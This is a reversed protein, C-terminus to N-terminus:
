ANKSHMRDLWYLAHHDTQLVFEKRYLFVSLVQIAWVVALCEKEVIAYKEERPLLKRSIFILRHDEGDEGVQSLVAGVGQNSADTQVIIEKSLDPTILVPAECLLRKVQQFARECETTWHFTTVKKKTLDSLPATVSSFQPSNQTIDSWALFARIDTKTRPRPYDMVAKTKSDEPRVQGKGIKYGLYLVETM